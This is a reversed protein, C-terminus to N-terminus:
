RVLGPIEVSKLQLTESIIADLVKEIEIDTLTKENSQFVFRFGIKIEDANRNEYYDFVFVNKLTAHTYSFIIQQLKEFDRLDRVSYSLDRYSSPYESIQKYLVPKFKSESEEIFNLDISIDDLDIAIYVIDSKIKTDLNSRSIIEPKCSNNSILDDLEGLLYEVSIKKSFDKYNNGIRGSAIVGLCKKEITDNKLNKNKSTKYLKSIEFLKISEKQRRENYLLNNLLSDKLNSRLYEKNSDLPNDLKVSQLNGDQVFPSNIVEYFGKNILSNKIHKEKNHVIKKNSKIILKEKNINDYGIVRAIEESLDNLSIIDGRFSPVVVINNEFEFGLKKLISNHVDKDLNFGLISNIRDHSYDINNPIFNLNDESFFKLQKISAHNSVIKIFRRLAKEQCLPDVRREFKHAAESQIDYKVSKGMIIEPDFFACEILVSKTNESCATEKSGMIGAMNIIKNNSKFVANKNGDLTLTKDFLTNFNIKENTLEFSIDLSIKELDYCHTPQGLEYSVYNSIDTFFNNRKLSLDKFYEKLEDNYEKIKSDIEIMLFSIKPCAKKSLNKFNIELDEINDQYLDLDNEIDYFAALDRLLGRLSLCDGRNPTFEMDFIDNEIEHEHGLQFLKNSLHDISVNQKINKVIHSYPIKM